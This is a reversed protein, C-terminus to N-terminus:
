IQSFNFFHAACSERSRLFSRPHTIPLGEAPWCPNNATARDLAHPACGDGWRSYDIEHAAITKGPDAKTHTAREPVDDSSFADDSSFETALRYRPVAEGSAPALPAASAAQEHLAARHVRPTLRVGPSLPSVSPSGSSRDVEVDVHPAVALEQLGILTEATVARRRTTVPLDVIWNRNSSCHGPREVRRCVSRPYEARATPCPVDAGFGGLGSERRTATSGKEPAAWGRRV